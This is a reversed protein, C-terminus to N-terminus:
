EAISVSMGLLALTSAIVVNGHVRNVNNNSSNSSSLYSLWCCVATWLFALVINRPGILINRAVHAVGTSSLPSDAEECSVETNMSSSSGNVQHHHHHNIAEVWWLWAYVPLIAFAMSWTVM